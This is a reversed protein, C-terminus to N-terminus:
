KDRSAARSSKGGKKRVVHLSVKGSVWFVAVLGLSISIAWYM